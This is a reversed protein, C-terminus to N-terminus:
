GKLAADWRRREAAQAASGQRGEYQGMENLHAVPDKLTGRAHANALDAYSSLYWDIDVYLPAPKRGEFYGFQTFHHHLSPLDGKAVAEKVDPNREAYFESDFEKLAAIESLLFRLFTVPVEVKGSTADAPDIGLSELIYTYSPMYEDVNRDILKEAAGM